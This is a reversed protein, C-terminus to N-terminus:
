FGIYISLCTPVKGKTEVDNNRSQDLQQFADKKEHINQFPKHLIPMM